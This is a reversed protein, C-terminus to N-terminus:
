IADLRTLLILVSTLSVLKKTKVSVTTDNFEIWNDTAGSRIYTIFHGIGTGRREILGTIKYSIRTGNLDISLTENLDVRKRSVIESYPYTNSPFNRETVIFFHKLFIVEDNEDGPSLKHAQQQKEVVTKISSEMMCAPDITGYMEVSSTHVIFGEMVKKTKIGLEMSLMRTSQCENILLEDIMSHLCSVCDNPETSKYQPYAASFRAFLQDVSLSDSLTNSMLQIQNYIEAALTHDKFKYNYSNMIHALLQLASIFYCTLGTRRLGVMPFLKNPDVDGSSIMPTDGELANELLVDSSDYELSSEQRSEDNLLPIEAESEDVCFSREFVTRVLKGSAGVHGFKSITNNHPVRPHLLRSKSRYERQKVRADELKKVIGQTNPDIPRGIVREYIMAYYDPHNFALVAIACRAEFSAGQWRNKPCYMGKLSNLSENGNTHHGTRCKCVDPFTSIVLKKIIDLQDENLPDYNIDKSHLCSAHNGSYHNIINMWIAGKEEGDAAIAVHFMHILSIQVTKPLIKHPDCREIMRVISKAEHRPDLLEEWNMNLKKVLVRAKSDKDHTFSSFKNVEKIRRLIIDLGYLEMQNSPGDYESDKIVIKKSVVEFDIVSPTSDLLSVFCHNANRWHSWSGDFSVTDSTSDDLCRKCSERALEIIAKHVLPATKYFSRKSPPVGGLKAYFRSANTYSMGESLAAIVFLKTLDSQLMVPDSTSCGAYLSLRELCPTHIMDSENIQSIQRLDLPCPVPALKGYRIAAGYKGAISRKKKLSLRKM